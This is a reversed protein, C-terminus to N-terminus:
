RYNQKCVTLISEEKSTGPNPYIWKNSIDGKGTVKGTGMRGKYNTVQLNKFRILRCDAIVRTVDSLYGYGGENAYDSLEWFYVFENDTIIKDSEFYYKAGSETEGTITWEGYSPTSFMLTSFLLTFILLLKKM